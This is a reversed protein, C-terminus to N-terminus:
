PSAKPRVEVVDVVGAREADTAPRDAAPRRRLYFHRDVTFAVGKLWIMEGPLVAHHAFSRHRANARTEREFGWRFAHRDACLESAWESDGGRGERKEFEGARTVAHGCEHAILAVLRPLSFRAARRSLEIWGSALYEESYQRAWLRPDGETQTVLHRVHEPDEIWQGLTSANGSGLLRFARV